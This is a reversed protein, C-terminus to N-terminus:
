ELLEELEQRLRKRAYHLRSMVTGVSCGMVQAIERYSLGEMERLTLAAAQVAPLRGLADRVIDALERGSALGSPDMGGAPVSPLHAVPEEQRRRLRRRRDLATNLVIRYFWTSFSSGGRFSGLGFYARVFADQSADLAEEADRLVSYALRVAKDRYRRVLEGFAEDDGGMCATVLQEDSRTM